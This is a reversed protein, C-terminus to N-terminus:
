PRTTRGPAGGERRKGRKQEYMLEDARALLMEVDFHDEPDVGIVGSSLSLEYPLKLAAAHRHLNENLRAVSNSVDAPETHAELIVFEDGGMRAIIDSGRFTSRLVSAIEALARSGREHGYTDNIAKLGDVDTFILSVRNQDRFASKLHHEALTLFGRRNYLGTLEDTLALNRLSEQAQNLEGLAQELQAVRQALGRQLEVIRIGVKVRAHLEEEDFPKTLYDDAGSELGRVVNQKGSQATLLIIYIPRADERRRVRRCVGIGDMVPMTLDLIALRPADPDRLVSWAAAGDCTEVVDHGWSELMTKLIRRSVNEDEAILIRLPKMERFLVM